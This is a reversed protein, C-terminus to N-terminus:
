LGFCSRGRWAQNLNAGSSLSELPAAANQCDYMLPSQKIVFCRSRGTPSATDARLDLLVAAVSPIGFWTSHTVLGSSASCQRRAQHNALQHGPLFDIPRTRDGNQTTLLGIEPFLHNHETVHCMFPESNGGRM